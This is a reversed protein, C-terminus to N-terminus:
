LNTIIINFSSSTNGFLLIALTVSFNTDRSDKNGFFANFTREEAHGLEKKQSAQESSMKGM